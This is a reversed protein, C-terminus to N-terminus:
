VCGCWTGNREGANRIVEPGEGARVGEVTGEKRDNGEGCEGTLEMGGNGKREGEGGKESGEKGGQKDVDVDDTEVLKEVDVNVLDVLWEEGEWRAGEGFGVGYGDDESGKEGAEGETEGRKGGRGQTQKEDAGCEETGQIGHGGEAELAEGKEGGDGNEGDTTKKDVNAEKKM